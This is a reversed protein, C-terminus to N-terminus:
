LTWGVMLGAYPVVDDLERIISESMGVYKGTAIVKGAGVSARVFPGQRMTYQVGAEGNAFLCTIDPVPDAFPSVNNLKGGSLGAGLSFTVPGRRVRFRPMIALQPGVRVIAGYGGTVALEFNPHLAQAYEISLDGGPMFLGLGVGVRSHDRRDPPSLDLPEAHVVSATALVCALAVLISTAKM